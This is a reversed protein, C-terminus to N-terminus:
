PQGRPHNAEIRRVAAACFAREDPTLDAREGKGYALLFYVHAVRAFYAYVVRASGRKGAHRSPPAFRM